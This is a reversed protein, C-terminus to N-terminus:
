GYEGSSSMSQIMESTGRWLANIASQSHAYTEATVPKVNLISDTLCIATLLRTAATTTYRK